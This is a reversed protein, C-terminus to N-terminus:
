SLTGRGWVWFTVVVFGWLLVTMPDYMFFGLGRGAMLAQVLATLNVISLQGQAYWGIFCLTFVLYGRRFWALRSPHQILWPPELLAWVLVGLGVLLLVLEVWRDLWITHWTKQDSEPLEVYDHPLEALVSFHRTVLEPYVIGKSRTVHLEYSLAQAPDLGAPAIVRVVLWKRKAM